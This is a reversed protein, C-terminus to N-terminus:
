LSETEDYPPLHRSWYWTLALDAHDQAFDEGHRKSMQKLFLAIDRKQAKNYGDFRDFFLTANERDNGDLELWWITCPLLNSMWAERFNELCFLLYAPLYYRFAQPTMFTLCASEDGKYGTRLDDLRIEQWKKGRFFADIAARERDGPSPITINNGPSPLAGFDQVIRAKLDDM